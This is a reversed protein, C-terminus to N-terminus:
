GPVCQANGYHTLEALRLCTTAGDLQQVLMDTLVLDHSPQVTDLTAPCIRRHQYWREWVGDKDKVRRGSYAYVREKVTLMSSYAVVIVALVALIGITLVTSGSTGTMPREYEGAKKAAERDYTV